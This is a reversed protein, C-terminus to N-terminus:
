RDHPIKPFSSPVYGPPLGKEVFPFKDPDSIFVNGKDDLQYENGAPDL